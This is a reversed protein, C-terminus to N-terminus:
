TLYHCMATERNINEGKMMEHWHEQGRGGSDASLVVQGISEDSLLMDYNMVRITIVYDQIWKSDIDFLFGKNWVPNTTRKRKTQQTELIKGDLSLMVRIYPAPFRFM